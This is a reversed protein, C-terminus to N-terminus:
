QAVSSAPITPSPLPLTLTLTLQSVGDSYISANIAAAASILRLRLFHPAAMCLTNHISRLRSCHASLPQYAYTKLRVSGSSASSASHSSGSPLAISSLRSARGNRVTLASRKIIRPMNPSLKIRTPTGSRSAGSTFISSSYIFACAYSFM